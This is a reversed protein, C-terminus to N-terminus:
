KLYFFFFILHFFATTCNYININWINEHSESVCFLHQEWIVWLIAISTMRSNKSVTRLVNRKSCWWLYIRSWRLVWLSESARETGGESPDPYGMGDNQIFWQIKGLLTTVLVHSGGLYFFCHERRKCSLSYYGAPFFLLLYWAICSHSAFDINILWHHLFFQASTNKELKLYNEKDKINCLLRKVYIMTRLSCRM